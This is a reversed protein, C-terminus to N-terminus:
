HSKVMGWLGIGILAVGALGLILMIAPSSFATITSDVNGSAVIANNQSMALPIAAFLLGIGILLAIM